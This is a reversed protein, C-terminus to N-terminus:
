IDKKIINIGSIKPEIGELKTLEQPHMRYCLLAHRQLKLNNPNRLINSINFLNGLTLLYSIRSKGNGSNLELFLLLKYISLPNIFKKSASNM